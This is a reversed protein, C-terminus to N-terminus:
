FDLMFLKFCSQKTSVRLIIDGNFTTLAEDLLQLKDKYSKFQELVVKNGRVMKKIADVPTSVM